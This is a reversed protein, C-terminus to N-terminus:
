HTANYIVTTLPQQQGDLSFDLQQQEFTPKTRYEPLLLPHFINKTRPRRNDSHNTLSRPKDKASISIAQLQRTRFFVTSLLVFMYYVVFDSANVNYVNEGPRGETKVSLFYYLYLWTHMFSVIFMLNTNYGGPGYNASNWSIVPAICHHFLHIKSVFSDKKRLVAFITDAFELFRSAFFLWCLQVMKLADDNSSFDVPECRLKYKTFWGYVGFNIFLWMNFASISLNYVIMVSRFNYPPRNKMWTPGVYKVFIFYIAIIFLMTTPSDMLPYVAVRPDGYKLVYEYDPTM